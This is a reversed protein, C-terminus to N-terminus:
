WKGYCARLACPMSETLVGNCGDIISCKGSRYKLGYDCTVSCDSWDSWDGVVGEAPILLLYFFNVTLTRINSLVAYM